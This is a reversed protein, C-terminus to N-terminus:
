PRSLDQTPMDRASSAQGEATRREQYRERPRTPKRCPLGLRDSIELSNDAEEVRIKAMRVLAVFATFTSGGRVSRSVAPPWAKSAMVSRHRLHLVRSTRRQEECKAALKLASLLFGNLFPFQRPIGGRMTVAM